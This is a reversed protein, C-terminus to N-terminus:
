NGFATESPVFQDIFSKKSPVKGASVKSSQKSPVKDEAVYRDALAQTEASAPVVSAVPATRVDSQAICATTALLAAAIGALGFRNLNLM